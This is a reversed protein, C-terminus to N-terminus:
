KDSAHDNVTDHVIDRIERIETLADTMHSDTTGWMKIIRNIVYMAWWWWIVAITFMVTEGVVMALKFMNDTGFVWVFFTGALATMPLVAAAWAWLRIEKLTKDRFNNFNRM